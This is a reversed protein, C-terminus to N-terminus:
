LLEMEGIEMTQKEDLVAFHKDWFVKTCYGLPQFLENILLIKKQDGENERNGVYLLLEKTHFKNQYAISNGLLTTLADVYKEVSAGTKEQHLMMHAVYYKEKASLSLFLEAATEGYEGEEMRKMLNHIDYERRTLGSRFELEILYHAYLDFLLERLEARMPMEGYLAEMIGDFRYFANFTLYTLGQKEEMWDGLFESYPGFSRAQQYRIKGKDRAARNWFEEM